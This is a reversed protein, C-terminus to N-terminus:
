RMPCRCCPHPLNMIGTVGAEVLENTVEQAEEAACM